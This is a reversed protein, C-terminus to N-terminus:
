GAVAVNLGPIYFRRSRFDIIKSVLRARINAALLLGEQAIVGAIFHLTKQEAFRDRRLLEGIQKSGGHRYTGGREKLGLEAGTGSRRCSPLSRRV